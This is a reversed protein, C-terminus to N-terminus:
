VLQSQWSFSPIFFAFFLLFPCASFILNTISIRRQPARVSKQKPVSSRCLTRILHLLM